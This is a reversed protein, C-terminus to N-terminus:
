FNIGILGSVTFIDGTPSIGTNTTTAGEQFSIVRGEDPFSVYHYLAQAGLFVRNNMLPFEVGLGGQFGTADDRLSGTAAEFTTTRYYKSMGGILYPNIKALGRSINQTNIYYKLNFEWRTLSIRGTYTKGPTASSTNADIFQLAHDSGSYGVQLAFRLDFFYALFAGYYVGPRYLKGYSETFSAAGAMAGLTFFRGNHFFNIDSEEEGGEEFESYDSFPDFTSDSSGSSSDEEFQAFAHHASTSLLCLACFLTTLFKSLRIGGKLNRNDRHLLVFAM